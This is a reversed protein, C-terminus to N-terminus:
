IPLDKPRPPLLARSASKRKNSRNGLKISIQPFLNSSLSLSPSLSLLIFLRSVFSFNSEGIAITIAYRNIRKKGWIKLMKKRKKKKKKM